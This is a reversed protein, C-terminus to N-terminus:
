TKAEELISKKESRQDQTMDHALNIFPKNATADQPGRNEEQYKRWTGLRLFLQRKKEESSLKILVPRIEGEDNSKKGIRRCDLVDEESINTGCIKAIELFDRIDDVKVADTSDTSTNEKLNYIILNNRREEKLKLNWVQQRIEKRADQPDARAQIMAENVKTQVVTNLDGSSGMAEKVVESFTMKINQSKKINDETEQQITAELCDKFEDEVKWIKDVKESMENIMAELTGLRVDTNKNTTLEQAVCEKLDKFEEELVNQRAGMELQGKEVKKIYRYMKECGKKCHSCYWHLQEGAEENVMFDYVDEPLHECQIHYWIECIECSLGKDDDRVVLKCGGCNDRTNECIVTKKEINVKPKPRPRAAM